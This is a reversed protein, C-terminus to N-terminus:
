FIPQRYVRVLGTKVEMILTRSEIGHLDDKHIKLGLEYLKHKVADINRRGVNYVDNHFRSDAGGYMQIVLDEKRCGYKICMTNILLPIGTEAFYGPREKRDNNDFPYPLVVHIMGAMKKVPSYATVGVCSALAYTRIIDNEKDSIIYEGLGVTLEM